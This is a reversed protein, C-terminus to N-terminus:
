EDEIVEAESPGEQPKHYKSFWDLDGAKRDEFRSPGDFRHEKPANLALVRNFRSDSNPSPKRRSEAIRMHEKVMPSVESRLVRANAQARSMRDLADKVAGLGRDLHRKLDRWLFEKVYRAFAKAIIADDCEGDAHEIKGGKKEELTKLDDIVIKSVFCEPTELVMLKLSQIIRPRSVSTTDIGYTKAGLTGKEKIRRKNGVQGGDERHQVTYFLRATVEPREAILHQLVALGYSNREIIVVCKPLLRVVEAIFKELDPTDMKNNKFAAITELDDPHSVIVASSDRDLGGSVDVTVIYSVSPDPRSYFYLPYKGDVLMEVGVHDRQFAEVHVIDAEEFPSVDSSATWQCLIERRILKMDNNLARCQKRFWDANRRLQKYNYEIYLFDNTSNADIYATVEEDTMDFLEETFLASGNIM